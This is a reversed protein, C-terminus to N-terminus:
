FKKKYINCDKSIIGKIVVIRIDDKSSLFVENFFKLTIPKVEDIM